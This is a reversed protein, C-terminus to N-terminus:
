ILKLIAQVILVAIVLYLIWKVLRKGNRVALYAGLYSGLINAISAPIAIEYLISGKAIYSVLAILNSVVIIVKGNGTAVRMDYGFIVSFLMLAVTGCGPGFFGDYLGLLLGCVLCLLVSALSLPLKRLERNELHFRSVLLTLVIIFAMAAVIIIKKVDDPLVFMIKTSVMSGVIATVCAILAPRLDVLGSRAYKFLSASTGLFSQMKNCGYAMNLPMGTMLYAPLSIIGGGGSIGDILGALFLLPCVFLLNILLDM